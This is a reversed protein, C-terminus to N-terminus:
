SRSRRATSVQRGALRPRQSREIWERLAAPQVRILRGVPVRPIDGRAILERTLTLGCGLVRAVQPVDLLPEVDVGGATQRADDGQVKRSFRESM